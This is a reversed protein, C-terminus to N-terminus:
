QGPGPVAQAADIRAHRLYQGEGYLLPPRPSPAVISAVTGILVFHSAVPRAELLRCEFTALSGRLIPM